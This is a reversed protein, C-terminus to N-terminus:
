KKLAIAGNAITNARLYAHSEKPRLKPHGLVVLILILSRLTEKYNQSVKLVGEFLLFIGTITWVDWHSNM